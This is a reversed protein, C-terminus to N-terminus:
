DASAKATPQISNNAIEIIELIAEIVLKPETIQPFHGSERCEHYTASSSLRLLEQQYKKHIRLSREPVFPMKKIGSLVAIPIDPFSGANQVQDVTLRIEEDESYKFKEFIKELCKISNNFMDLVAPVKILKQELIENPSPSDVFAVADVEDPYKRALLNAYVGGLSHGVLIYPPKLSLYKLATRLEEIVTIGDQHKAAKQSSGIGRRNYLFVKYREAISPFVKDWSSFLMRFGNIFVVTVSGNGSLLYELEEMIIEYNYGLASIRM